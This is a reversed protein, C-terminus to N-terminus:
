SLNWGPGRGYLWAASGVAFATSGGGNTALTVQTIASASRYGITVEDLELNGSSTGRVNDMALRAVKHAVTSTYGPIVVEVRSFFAGPQSPLTGWIVGASALTISTGVSAGSASVGQYDYISSSDGNFTLVINPPTGNQAQVLAVLVLEAYTQAIGSFDLVAPSADVNTFVLGQLGGPTITLDVTPGSGDTVNVTSDSSEILTISGAGGGGGSQAPKLGM